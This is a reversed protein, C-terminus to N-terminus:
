RGLAGRVILQVANLAMLVIVLMRILRTPATMLLKAGLRSGLIVALSAVIYIEPSLRRTHAFTFLTASNAIGISANAAAVAVRLPLLMVLNYIPILAWGAGLGFFGASFGVFVALLLGTGVRSPCYEVEKGLIQDLYSSKLGFFEALRSDCRQEPWDVGRKLLLGVIVFMVIGLTIRLISMGEAGLSVVYNGAYVGIIGAPMLVASMVLVLKFPALRRKFLTAGAMLSSYTAVALGTGRVIDPNINTFGLLLPTFLVGGGVGALPAIVGILFSLIFLGALILLGGVETM